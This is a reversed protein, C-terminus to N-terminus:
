ICTRPVAVDTMQVSSKDHKLALSDCLRRCSVYFAATLNFLSYRLSPEKFIHLRSLSDATINLDLVRTTGPNFTSSLITATRGSSLPSPTSTGVLVVTAVLQKMENKIVDLTYACM